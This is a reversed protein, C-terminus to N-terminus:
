QEFDTTSLSGDKGRTVRKLKIGPLNAGHLEQQIAMTTADGEQTYPLCIRLEDIAQDWVRDILERITLQDPGIGDRPSIVGHLVHYRGNFGQSEMLLIFSPKEVVAIIQKQRTDDTCIACPDDMTENFCVSCLRTDM